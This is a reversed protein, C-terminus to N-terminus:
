ILSHDYSSLFRLVSFPFLDFLVACLLSHVPFILYLLSVFRPCCHCLLVHFSILFSCSCSLYSSEVFIHLPTSCNLYSLQQLLSWDIHEFFHQIQVSINVPCCSCLEKERYTVVLYICM